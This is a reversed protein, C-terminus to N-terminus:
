KVSREKGERESGSDADSSKKPFSYLLKTAPYYPFANSVIRLVREHLRDVSFLSFTKRWETTKEEDVDRTLGDVTMLTFPMSENLESEFEAPMIGGFIELKAVTESSCFPCLTTWQGGGRRVRSRESKTSRAKEKNEVNLQM